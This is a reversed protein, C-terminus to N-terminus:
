GASLAQKALTSGAKQAGTPTSVTSGKADVPLTIGVFRAATRAIFRGDEAAYAAAAGVGAVNQFGGGSDVASYIQAARSTAVDLYVTGSGGSTRVAYACSVFQGQSQPSPSASSAGVARAVAAASLLSCADHVSATPADTTKIPTAPTSFTPTDTPLGTIPASSPPDPPKSTPASSPASSPTASSSVASRKPASSGDNKADNSCGALTIAGALAVGLVAARTLM